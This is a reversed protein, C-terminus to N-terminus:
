TPSQLRPPAITNSYTLVLNLTKETSMSGNFCIAKCLTQIFDSNDEPPTKAIM